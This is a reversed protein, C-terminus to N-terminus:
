KILEMKITFGLVQAYNTITRISPSHSIKGAGELRAIVNPYTGLQKAVSAQSIRAKLRAARLQKMIDDVKHM